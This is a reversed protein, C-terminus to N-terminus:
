FAFTQSEESGESPIESHFSHLVPVFSISLHCSLWCPCQNYEHQTPEFGPELVNKDKQHRLKKQKYFYTEYCGARQITTIILPPLLVDTM